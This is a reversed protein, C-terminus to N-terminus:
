NKEDKIKLNLYTTLGPIRKVFEVSVIYHIFSVVKYAASENPLILKMNRLINVSYFWFASYCVFSICQLAGSINGKNEGISYISCILVCIVCSEWICKWAKKFNFDEKNVLLGALLGFAFNLGFIIMLSTLDGEIPRLYALVGSLMSIIFSKVYEM